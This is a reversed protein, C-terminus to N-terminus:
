EHSKSNQTEIFDRLQKEVRKLYCYCSTASGVIETTFGFLDPSQLNETMVMMSKICTELQDAIYKQNDVSLMLNNSNM